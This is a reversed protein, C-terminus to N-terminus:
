RASSPPHCKVAQLILSLDIGGHIKLCTFVINIVLLLITYYPFLNIRYLIDSALRFFIFNGPISEDNSAFELSYSLGDDEETFVISIYRITM